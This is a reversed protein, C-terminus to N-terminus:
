PYMFLYERTMPLETSHRNERQALCGLLSVLLGLEKAAGTHPQTVPINPHAVAAWFQWAVLAPKSGWLGQSFSCCRKRGFLARIHPLTKGFFTYINKMEKVFLLFLQSTRYFWASIWLSASTFNQDSVTELPQSECFFNSLYEANLLRNFRFLYTLIRADSGLSEVFLNFNCIWLTQICTDLRWLLTHNFNNRIVTYRSIPSPKLMKKFPM